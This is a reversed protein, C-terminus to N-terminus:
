AMHWGFLETWMMVMIIVMVLMTMTTVNLVFPKIMMLMMCVVLMLMLTVMMMMMTFERDDIYKSMMTMMLLSLTDGDNDNVRLYQQLDAITAGDREMLELLPIESKSVALQLSRQCLNAFSLLEMSKVYNANRICKGVSEM